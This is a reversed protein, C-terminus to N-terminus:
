RLGGHEYSLAARTPKREASNDLFQHRRQLCGLAGGGTPVSGMPTLNTANWLSLNGLVNTVLIRQGDFAAQIPLNLGNGTLTALVMGDRARVVTVSHDDTTPVWINSGDFVPFRPHVGVSVSQIVNGMTDLKKLKDDGQNTVWLNAGDFLIGAPGSFGTTLNTTSGSDPDIKSVSGPSGENATWVYTGDTTIGLPSNGLSSSLLVVPGPPLTPNIVYLNGVGGTVYIRGRAVLVGKPGPAGTWTGVVTGDSARVRKVDASFNDAVWLDLGDSAV